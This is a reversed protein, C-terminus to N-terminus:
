TRNLALTIYLNDLNHVPKEPGMFIDFIKIIFRGKDSLTKLNNFWEYWEMIRRANRTDEKELGDKLERFKKIFKEAFIEFNQDYENELDKYSYKELINLIIKTDADKSDNKFYIAKAYVLPLKTLDDYGRCSSYNEEFQNLNSKFRLIETSNTNSLQPDKLINESITKAKEVYNLSMEKIQGLAFTILQQSPLLLNDEIPPLIDFSEM